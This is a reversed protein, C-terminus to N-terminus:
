YTKWARGPTCCVEGFLELSEFGQLSISAELFFDFEFRLQAIQECFIAVAKLVHDVKKIRLCTTASWYGLGLHATALRALQLKISVRVSTFDDFGFTTVVFRKFIPLRLM